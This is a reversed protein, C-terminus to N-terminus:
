ILKIHDTNPAAVAAKRRQEPTLLDAGSPALSLQSIDVEVPPREASLTELQAGAPALSFESTDPIAAPIHTREAATLLDSGAAALSLHDLPPMAPAPNRQSGDTLPGPAALSLHSLDIAPAVIHTREDANLVDAGAPALSLASTATQAATATAVVPQATSLLAAAVVPKVATAPEVAITQAKFAVEVGAKQLAERYKLATNKDVGRKLIQAKGTLLGLMTEPSAKFIQALREGAMARTTDAALQGTLYVDYLPADM